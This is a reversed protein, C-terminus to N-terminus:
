INLLQRNVKILDQKRFSIAIMGGIYYSTCIEIGRFLYKANFGIKFMNRGTEEILGLLKIMENIEIDETCISLIEQENELDLMNMLDTFGSSRLEEKTNLDYDSPSKWEM